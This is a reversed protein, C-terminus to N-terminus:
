IASEVFASRAHYENLSLTTAWVSSFSKISIIQFLLPASRRKKSSQGRFYFNKDEEVNYPINNEKLIKLFKISKEAQMELNKISNFYPYDIIFSALSRQYFLVDKYKINM